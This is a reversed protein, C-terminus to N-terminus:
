TTTARRAAAVFAAIRAPDKRGGSEVGSSVDVGLPTAAAIADGVNDPDLGGALLIPWRKALARALTWDARVGMGGAGGESYGDILFAAPATPGDAWFALERAVAAPTTGPRPRLSRIVPAGIRALMDATEAGHLQVFDLGATEVAAAIEDLAADVFVGVARPTQGSERAAAICAGAQTATVQRRSPAFIFGILDAGAAAAAAAHAPERLGCIKVIPRPRGALFEAANM